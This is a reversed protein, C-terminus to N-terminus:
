RKIRDHPTHSRRDRRGYPRVLMLVSQGSPDVLTFSGRKLIDLVSALFVERDFFDIGIIGRPEVQLAVISLFGLVITQLIAVAKCQIAVQRCKKLEVRCGSYLSHFLKNNTLVKFDINFALHGCWLM